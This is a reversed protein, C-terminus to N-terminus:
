TLSRTTRTFKKGIVGKYQKFKYVLDEDPFTYPYIDIFNSSFCSPLGMIKPAELKAAILVPLPASTNQNNRRM